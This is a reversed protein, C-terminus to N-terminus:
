QQAMRQDGCLELSIFQLQRLSEKCSLSSAKRRMLEDYLREMLSNLAVDTFASLDRLRAHAADAGFVEELARKFSRCSSFYWWQKFHNRLSLRGDAITHLAERLWFSRGRGSETRSGHGTIKANRLNSTARSQGPSFRSALRLFLCRILRERRRSSGRKSREGRRGAVRGCVIEALTDSSGEFSKTFLTPGGDKGVNNRSDACSSSHDIADLIALGVWL